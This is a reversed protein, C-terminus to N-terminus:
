FNMPDNAIDEEDPNSQGGREEPDMLPQNVDDM